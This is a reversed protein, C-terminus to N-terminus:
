ALGKAVHIPVLDGAVGAALAQGVIRTGTTAGATATATVAKGNADSSVYDGAAVTGGLVCKEVGVLAYTGTQNLAPADQLIFANAGATAAVLNGSGDFKVLTFQKGTLDAAAKATWSLIVKSTAM